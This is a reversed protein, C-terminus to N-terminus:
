ESGWRKRWQTTSERESVRQEASRRETIEAATGALTPDRYPIGARTQLHELESACLPTLSQVAQSQPHAAITGHAWQHPLAPGTVPLTGLVLGTEQLASRVAAARCYTTLKGEPALCQAVHTLFEVTWLQPCRRPSFPDLFIADARFGQQHLRPLTTRADEWHLMAQCVESIYTGNKALERLVPVVTPSWLSLIEPALAALPVSPDIEVGVLTVHCRPNVEWVVALAAATNYGLGYCVDLIVLRDDLARQALDAAGVFKDIAESRAGGRSHFTEQFDPSFFTYSGDATTELHQAWPISTM